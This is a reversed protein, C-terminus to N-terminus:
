RYIKIGFSEQKRSVIKHFFLMYLILILISVVSVFILIIPLKSKKSDNISQTSEKYNFNERVIKGNKRTYM